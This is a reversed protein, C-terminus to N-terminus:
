APKLKALRDLLCDLVGLLAISELHGTCFRDLRVHYILLRRVERLSANNIHRLSVTKSPTDKYASQWDFAAVFGTANMAYLLRELSRAWELSQAGLEELVKTDPKCELIIDVMASTVPPRLPM